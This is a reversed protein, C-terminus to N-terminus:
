SGEDLKAPGAVVSFQGGAGAWTLLRGKVGKGGIQQAVEVDESDGLGLQGQSGFGTAYASGAKNVIITHDTGCAVHIAQGLGSVGTPRLCIRPKNREDCRILTADQLQEPTFSIGLQGDDMRGWMLCKGDDTVAASHHAGGDLVAVGKGCLDPIKIPSPLVASDAGATKAYGTEGYSNLGWAWVNDKRDIAFCHYEGSAIYKANNRCVRVQRPILHEQYRGFLRRGFQNQENSGWAWINGM